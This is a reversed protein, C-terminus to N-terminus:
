PPSLEDLLRGAEGDRLKLIDDQYKLLAGLTDALLEPTLTVADLQVLARCWDVTEALGDRLYGLLHAAFDQSQSSVVPIADTGIKVKGQFSGNFPGFVALGQIGPCVGGLLDFFFYFRYFWAFAVCVIRKRRLM